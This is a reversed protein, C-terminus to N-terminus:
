RMPYIMRIDQVLEYEGIGGRDVFLFRLGLGEYYWIQYPYTGWEYPHDEIFDPPGYKIYVRGRDTKYGKTVVSFKKMVYDFRKLFEIEAENIPTSEDPDRNKWFEKWLERKNNEEAQKLVKLEENNFIYGLASVIDKWQYHALIDVGKLVFRRIYKEKFGKGEFLYVAYLKGEPIDKIKLPVVFNNLGLTDIDRIILVNKYGDKEIYFSFKGRKNVFLTVFVNISDISDSFPPIYFKKIEGKKIFFLPDGFRVERKDKWKHKYNWKRNSNVDKLIVEIEKIGNEFFLWKELKIKNEKQRTEEYLSYRVKKEFRIFYERNKFDLLKLEARIGGEFAHIGKKFVILYPSIESIVLLSEGKSTIRKFCDIKLTDVYFSFIVGWLLM